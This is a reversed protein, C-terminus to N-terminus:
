FRVFGAAPRRRLRAAIAHALPHSLIEELPEPLALSWSREAAGPLNPRWQIALADELTAVVIASPAQALLEYARKIIDEVPALDGLDTM